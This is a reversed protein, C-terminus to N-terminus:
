RRQEWVPDTILARAAGRLAARSLVRAYEITPGAADDPDTGINLQVLYDEMAESASEVVEKSLLVKEFMQKM